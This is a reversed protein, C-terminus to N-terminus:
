NLEVVLWKNWQLINVTKNCFGLGWDIVTAPKGTMEVRTRGSSPYIIGEEWCARRFTIPQKIESNFTKGNSDQGSVYGTIQFIDDIVGPTGQGGTMERVRESSWQYWTGNALTIRADTVTESFELRNQANRHIMDVELLGDFTNGDVTYSQFDVSYSYADPDEEDIYHVVIKGSRTKGNLGQCPEDGFDLILRDTYTDNTVVGCDGVLYGTSGDDLTITIADESLTMADELGEQIEEIDQIFDVVPQVNEEIDQIFGECSTLAAGGILLAVYSWQTARVIRDIRQRM